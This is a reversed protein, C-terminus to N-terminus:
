VVDLSVCYLLIHSETNERVEHSQAVEKQCVLKHTCRKAPKLPWQRYSGRCMEEVWGLRSASNVSCKTVERPGNLNVLRIEKTPFSSLQKGSCQVSLHSPVTSALLPVITSSSLFNKEEAWSHYYSISHTCNQKQASGCEAGLDNWNLLLANSCPLLQWPCNFKYGYGNVM